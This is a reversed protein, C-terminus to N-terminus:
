KRTILYVEELFSDIGWSEQWKGFADKTEIKKITCKKGSLCLLIIYYRAVCFIHADCFKDILQKPCYLKNRKHM